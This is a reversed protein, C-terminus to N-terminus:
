NAANRQEKFIQAIKSLAGIESLTLGNFVEMDLGAARQAAGHASEDKDLLYDVTCCLAESINELVQKSPQIEGREYKSMASKKVGVLTGLSECTLGREKRLRRLNDMRRPNSKSDM